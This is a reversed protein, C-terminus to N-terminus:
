SAASLSIQALYKAGGAQMALASNRAVCPRLDPNYRDTKTGGANLVKVQSNFTVRKKKKKSRQEVSKACTQQSHKSPYLLILLIGILLLVILPISM